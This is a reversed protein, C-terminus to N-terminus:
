FHLDYRGTDCAQRNQHFERRGKVLDLLSGLQQEECQRKCTVTASSAIYYHTAIDRLSSRYPDISDFFPNLLQAFLSEQKPPPLLNSSPHPPLVSILPLEEVLKAEILHDRSVVQQSSDIHKRRSNQGIQVV